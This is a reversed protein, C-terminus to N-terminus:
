AMHTGGNLNLTQGTVYGAHPGALYRVAAAVEAPSGPRGVPIATTRQHEPVHARATDIRGPSVANVTIGHAAYEHALARTLGLLGAKATVVHARGAAGVQGSVGAINVIRGWGADLMDPLVAQACTFAGGLVTDVVENWDERGIERFPRERRVAANNVLVRVPGLAERARAVGAAVADGDRVDAAWLLSRRGRDAVEREVERAAADATRALLLVDHGDEALDLAIRRGINRTAGTVLATGRPTPGM